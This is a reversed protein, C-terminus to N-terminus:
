VKYMIDDIAKLIKKFYKPIPEPIYYKHGRNLQSHYYLIAFEQDKKRELGIIYSEVENFRATGNGM